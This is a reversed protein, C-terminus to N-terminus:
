CHSQELPELGLGLSRQVYIVLKQESNGDLTGRSPCLDPGPESAMSASPTRVFQDFSGNGRMSHGLKVHSMEGHVVIYKQDSNGQM